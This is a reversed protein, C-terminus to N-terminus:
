ITPSTRAGCRSGLMVWVGLQLQSVHRILVLSARSRCSEVVVVIRKVVIRKVMMREVMMRKVVMRKVGLRKVV